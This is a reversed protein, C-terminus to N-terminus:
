SAPEPAPASRERERYADVLDDLMEEMREPTTCQSARLRIGVREEESWLPLGLARDLRQLQRPTPGSTTSGAPPPAEETRADVADSALASEFEERNAFFASAGTVELTLLTGARKEAMAVCDHLAERADRYTYGQGDRRQFRKEMTNCAASREALLRGTHDYAGLRLVIEVYEPTVTRQEDVRRLSIKFFGRLEEAGAKYLIPRTFVPSGRKDKPNGYHADEVLVQDLIMQMRRQRVRIRTLGRAFEDESLNAVDYGARQALHEQAAAERDLAVSDAASRTAVARGTETTV